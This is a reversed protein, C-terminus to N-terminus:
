GSNALPSEAGFSIGVEHVAYWKDSVSIACVADRKTDVCM